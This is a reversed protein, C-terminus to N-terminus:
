LRSACDFVFIKGDGISGTRAAAVAAETVQTLRDDDAICEIEAKPLFVLSFDGESYKELHGKQRAFGRAPQITLGHAGAQQLAQCVREAREPRVICRLKKM